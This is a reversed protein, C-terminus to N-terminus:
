NNTSQPKQQIEGRIDRFLDHEHGGFIYLGLFNALAKTNLLHPPENPLAGSKQPLPAPNSDPMDWLSGSASCSWQKIIYFIEPYFLFGLCFLPSFLCIASLSASGTSNNYPDPDLIRFDEMCIRIRIWPFINDCFEIKWNKKSFLM